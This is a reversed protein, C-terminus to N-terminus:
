QRCPMTPLRASTFVVLEGGMSQFLLRAAFGIPSIEGLSSRSRSEVVVAACRHGIADAHHSTFVAAPRRRHSQQHHGPGSQWRPEARRSTSNWGVVPKRRCRGTNITVAPQRRYHFHPMMLIAPQRRWCRRAPVHKLARLARCFYMEQSRRQSRHQQGVDPVAATYAAAFLRPPRRAAYLPQRAVPRGPGHLHTKQQRMLTLLITAMMWRRRLAFAIAAINRPMTIFRRAAADADARRSEAVARPKEIDHFTAKLPSTAWGARSARGRTTAVDTHRLRAAEKFYSRANRSSIKRRILLCTNPLVGCTSSFATPMACFRKVVTLSPITALFLSKTKVSPSSRKTSSAHGEAQCCRQLAYPARQMARGRGAAAAAEIYAGAAQTERMPAYPMDAM